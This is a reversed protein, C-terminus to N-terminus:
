IKNQDTSPIFGLARYMNPVSENETIHIFNDNKGREKGKNFKPIQEV